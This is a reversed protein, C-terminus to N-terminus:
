CEHPLDRSCVYGFEETCPGDTLARGEFHVCDGIGDPRFRFYKQLFDLDVQTGDTWIYDGDVLADHLGIWNEQTEDTGSNLLLGITFFGELPNNLSVLNGGLINCVREADVFTRQDGQYIYCRNDLRTWGKPCCNDKAPIATKSWAITWLRGLICLLFIWRLTFTM